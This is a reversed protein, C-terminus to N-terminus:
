LWSDVINIRDNVADMYSSKKAEDRKEKRAWSLVTAYHDSYKKHKSRIYESLANIRDEYDDPFRNQLKIYEEDTLGVNNFTGYIYKKNNNITKNNYQKITINNNTHLQQATTTCNNHLLQENQQAGDQYKEWNVITILSNKNSTQQEIQHESKFLNIVRLVKYENVGLREAIAKRGTILQGPKLIIKEGKFMAPYDEHTANLLLYIWIALHEADKTVVPNDLMKRHLCIWGSKM